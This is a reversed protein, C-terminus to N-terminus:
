GFYNKFLEGTFKKLDIWNKLKDEQKNFIDLIQNINDPVIDKLDNLKFEIIKLEDRTFNKEFSIYINSISKRYIKPIQFSRYFQNQNEIKFNLKGKLILDDNNYILNSDFLELKGIKVNALYSNNLNIRGNQFAMIIKLNDFLKNKIIKGSTLTIKSSLNKNFLLDSLFLNEIINKNKIISNLNMKDLDIDLKFNFPSFRIQGSYNLKNNLLSSNLSSFNFKGEEFTYDRQIKANGLTINNTGKLKKKLNESINKIDLNLNKIRLNTTTEKRKDFNKEWNLSFPHNFLKGEAKIKNLLNRINYNLDLRSIPVIAVTEDKADKYFLKSKKIILKKKSLKQSLVKNFFSLYERQFLFNANELVVKTIRIKKQDFLNKQSIYIKLKKIQSFEKPNELNNDFLKANKVLIHPSPLISYTIDSSISFNINFEKILKDTLDNQLRGKEYISPISLYFLYLFLLSILLILYKNFNSINIQIKKM